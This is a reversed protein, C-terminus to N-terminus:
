LWRKEKYWKITEWAGERFGFRTCFGLEKQALSPDCLWSKQIIELAKQTNILAPRKTFFSCLTFLSAVFLVLPPPLRIELTKVELEEEIIKGLETWTYIKPDALFYVKGNAVETESAQIMGEVLDKVYIVNLKRESFGIVPRIGLKVMKFYSFLDRDRPGYVAPPRIIVVPIRMKYGLVIREGRLKSKGYDTLPAPNDSETVPVGKKSPGTAAQSSLYVLKKIGPNVGCIAEVLNKTGIANIKYYTEKKVARVIGGLHFIKDVGKVIETLSDKDQLDGFCLEIRDKVGKLFTLDSTKRVLCRVNHDLSVLKEVLHSGIFGNGGTILIKMKQLTRLNPCNYIKCFYWYKALFIEYSELNIV